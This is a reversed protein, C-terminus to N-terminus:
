ANLVEEAAELAADFRFEVGDHSLMTPDSSAYDKSAETLERLLSFLRDNEKLTKDAVAAVHAVAAVQFMGATELADVAIQAVRKADSPDDIRSVAAAVVAIAITRQREQESIMTM